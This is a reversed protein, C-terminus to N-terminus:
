VKGYNGYLKWNEIKGLNGSKGMKGLNEWDGYKELIEV